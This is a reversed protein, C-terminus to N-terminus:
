FAHLGSQGLPMEHSHRDEELTPPPPARAVPTDASATDSVTDLAAPVHPSGSPMGSERANHKSQWDIYIHLKANRVAKGEEALYDAWEDFMLKVDEDDILDVYLNNNGPLQYKTNSIQLM